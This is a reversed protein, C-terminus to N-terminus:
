NQRGKKEIHGLSGKKWLKRFWIIEYYILLIELFVILMAIYVTFLATLSSPIVYPLGIGGSPLLFRLGPIIIGDLFVCGLLYFGRFFDDFLYYFLGKKTLDKSTIEEKRLEEEEGKYSVKKLEPM